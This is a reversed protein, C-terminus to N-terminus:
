SLPYERVGYTNLNDSTYQSLLEDTQRSIAEDSTSIYKPLYLRSLEMHTFQSLLIHPYGTLDAYRARYMVIYCSVTEPYSRTNMAIANIVGDTDTVHNTVYVTDGETYFYLFDGSQVTVNPAVPYTDILTKITFNNIVPSNIRVPM